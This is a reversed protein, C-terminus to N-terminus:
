QNHRPGEKDFSGYPMTSSQLPMRKKKRKKKKGYPPLFLSWGSWKLKEIWYGWGFYGVSPFLLWLPSGLRGVCHIARRALWWDDSTEM